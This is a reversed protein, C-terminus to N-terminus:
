KSENKVKCMNTNGKCDVADCERTGLCFGACVVYSDVVNGTLPNYIPKKIKKTFYYKCLKNNTYKKIKQSLWEEPNKHTKAIDLLIDELEFRDLPELLKKM